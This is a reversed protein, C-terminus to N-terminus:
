TGDFASEVLLLHPVLLMALITAKRYCYSQSSVLATSRLIRDVQASTFMTVTVVRDSHWGAGKMLAM